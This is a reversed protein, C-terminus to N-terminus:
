EYEGGKLAKATKKQIHFLLSKNIAPNTLFLKQVTDTVVQNIAKRSPMFILAAFGVNNKLSQRLLDHALCATKNIERRLKEKRKAPSLSAKEGFFLEQVQKEKGYAGQASLLATYLPRVYSHSVAYAADSIQQSIKGKFRSLFKEGGFIKLSSLGFCAHMFLKGYTANKDVQVGKNYEQMVAIVERLSATPRITLELLIEIEKILSAVIHAFEEKDMKELRFNNFSKKSIELIARRIDQKIADSDKLTKSARLYLFLGAIKKLHTSTFITQRINALLLQNSLAPLIQSGLLEEVLAPDSLLEVIKRVGTSINQNLIEEALSLSFKKVGLFLSQKIKQFDGVEPPLSADVLDGLEKQVDAKTLLSDWTQELGPLLKDSTDKFKSVLAELEEPLNKKDILVDWIQELGTKEGGKQLTSSPLLLKFIEASIKTYLDNEELEAINARFAESEEPIILMKQITPHCKEEEAFSFAMMQKKAAKEGNNSIARAINALKRKLAEEEPTSAKLSKVKKAKKFLTDLRKEANIYAEIHQSFIKVLSDFTRSYDLKGIRATLCKGLTEGIKEASNEFLKQAVDVLKDQLANQITTQLHTINNEILLQLIAKFVLDNEGYKSLELETFFTSSNSHDSEFVWGLVKEAPTFHWMSVQPVQTNSLRALDNIKNPLKEEIEKRLKKRDQDQCLWSFLAKMTDNLNTVKKLDEAINPSENLTYIAQIMAEITHGLFFQIWDNLNAIAEENPNISELPAKLKAEFLSRAFHVCFRKTFDQLKELAIDEQLAGSTPIPRVQKTLLYAPNERINKLTEQQKTSLKVSRKKWFCVAQILRLPFKLIALAIKMLKSRSKSSNAPPATSVALTSSPIRPPKLGM